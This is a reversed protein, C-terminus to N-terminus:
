LSANSFVALDGRECQSHICLWEKKSHGNKAIVACRNERSDSDKPCILSMYTPLPLTVNKIVFNEKSM